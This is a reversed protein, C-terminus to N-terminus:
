GEFVRWAAPMAELAARLDAILAAPPYRHALADLKPLLFGGDLGLARSLEHVLERGDVRGRLPGDADMDMSLMDLYAGLQPESGAAVLESLMRSAVDLATQLAEARSAPRGDIDGQRIKRMKFALDELAARTVDLWRREAALADLRARVEALPVGLAARDLVDDDLLYSEICHRPLPWPAVQESGPAFTDARHLDILRRPLFDRDRVGFVRLRPETAMRGFKARVKVDNKSAVGVVRVITAFPLDSLLAGLAANLLRQSRGGSVDECFLTIADARLPTM